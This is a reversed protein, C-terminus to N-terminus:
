DQFDSDVFKEGKITLVWSKLKNKKEKTEMLFGKKINMFVNYNINKPITEKAARFGDEIEKATMSKLGDFRELYFCVLLTKQIEDKPNKTLYFEKPSIKKQHSGTTSQNPSELKSLREEIDQIRNALEALTIDNDM